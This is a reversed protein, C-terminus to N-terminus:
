RYLTILYTYAAGWEHNSTTHPTGNQPYDARADCLSATLRYMQMRALLATAQLHMRWMAIPM